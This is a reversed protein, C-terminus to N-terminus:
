GGTPLTTSQAEAPSPDLGASLAAAVGDILRSSRRWGSVTWTYDPAEQGLRRAEVIWPRGLLGRGIIGAAVVFGLLILEIGFLLLPILIVAVVVAGVIIALTAALNDSGGIDPVSFAEAAAERAPVTRWRTLGRTVWRRGICWEEGAPSTASRSKLPM